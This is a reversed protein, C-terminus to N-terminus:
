VRVEGEGRGFNIKTGVALTVNKGPIVDKIGDVSSIVWKETSENRLGWITPDSPHRSVAAVPRSFDYLRQDDVHHPFLRTDHNLMVVHRGVRIRPPLPVSKQCAWCPGPGSGGRLAEPDYFNEAGCYACYIISDRLRVM